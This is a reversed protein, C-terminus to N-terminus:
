AKIEELWGTNSHGMQQAEEGGGPLRGWLGEFAQINEDRIGEKTATTTNQEKVNM